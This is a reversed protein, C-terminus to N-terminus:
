GPSHYEVDLDAGDKQEVDNIVKCRCTRRRPHELADEEGELVVGELLLCTPNMKAWITKPIRNGIDTDM